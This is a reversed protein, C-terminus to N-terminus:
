LAMWKEVDKNGADGRTNEWRIDRDFSTVDYHLDFKSMDM